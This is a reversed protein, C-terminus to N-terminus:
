TLDNHSCFLEIEAFLANFNSYSKGDFEVEKGLRFETRAKELLQGTAITDKSKLYYSYYKPFVFSM